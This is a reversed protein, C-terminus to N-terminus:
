ALRGGVLASNLRVKTDSANLTNQAWQLQVNGATGGIVAIGTLAAGQITGAGLCSFAMSGTTALAVPSGINAWNAAGSDSSSAGWSFTAGAPVTWAFKIDPTTGSDYLLWADILWVENALTPVFLHTDNVLTTSNNVIQDATKRALTHMAMNSNDRIHTNFNAATLTEGASWTKPTTWAM